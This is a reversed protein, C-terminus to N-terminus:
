VLSIGQDIAQDQAPEKKHAIMAQSYKNLAKLKMGIDEQTYHKTVVEKTDGIIMSRVDLPVDLTFLANSCTHRASHFTIRKKIEAKTMIDKLKRNTDQDTKVDFVKQEEFEMTPLLEKAQDILPIISSKKTKHQTFDLFTTTDLVKVNEFRLDVMDRYRLGTYCAFLFYRLVNQLNAPLTQEQYKKDLSILEAVKLHGYNGKLRNIILNKFPNEKIKGEKYAQNCVRKIFELGKNWTIPTNKLIRIMYDKYDLIFSENVESFTLTSRFRKLKSLQKRYHDLTDPSLESDRKIILYEIYEYFSVSGYNDNRYARSFEDLPLNKDNLAYDFAITRAKTEAKLILANKQHHFSDSKKVRQKASDFDNELCDFGLPFPKSLRGSTIRLNVPYQSNKKLYDKRLIIKFTLTTM